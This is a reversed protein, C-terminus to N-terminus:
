VRVRYHLHVVGNSFRREDLLELVLRVNDPLAPNGAGVVIPALIKSYVIKDATQRIKAYEQEASPGADGTPAKEWYRMVECMRRGSLNTGIPRELDNVFRHVEEDSASWEFNGEADAVYGDVSSIATYILNAV